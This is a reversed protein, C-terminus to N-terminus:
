TDWAFRFGSFAFRVHGLSTALDPRTQGYDALGLLAGGTTPGGGLWVSVEDVGTGKPATTEPDAAWGAIQVVGSVTAEAAPTEVLPLPAAWAVNEPAGGPLVGAVALCLLLVLRSVAARSGGRTTHM